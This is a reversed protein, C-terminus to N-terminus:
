RATGSRGCRFCAKRRRRGGGRRIRPLCRLASALRHYITRFEPSPEVIPWGRNQHRVLREVERFVVCGCGMHTINLVYLSILSHQGVIGKQAERNMFELNYLGFNPSTFFSESALAPRLLHIAPTRIMLEADTLGGTIAQQKIFLYIHYTPNGRSGAPSTRRRSQM